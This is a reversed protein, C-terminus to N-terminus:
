KKDCWHKGLYIRLPWSYDGGNFALENTRPSYVALEPLGKPNGYDSENRLIIITRESLDPIQNCHKRLSYPVLKWKSEPMDRGILISVKAKWNPEKNKKLIEIKPLDDPEPQEWIQSHLRNQDNAKCFSMNIAGALVIITLSIRNLNM